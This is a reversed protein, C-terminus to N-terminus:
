DSYDRFVMSVQLFHRQIQSDALLTHCATGARYGLKTCPLDPNSGFLSSNLQSCGIDAKNQELLLQEYRTAKQVLSQWIKARDAVSPMGGDKQFRDASCALLQRHLGFCCILLKWPWLREDIQSQRSVLLHTTVAITGLM